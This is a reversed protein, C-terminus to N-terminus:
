CPFKKRMLDAVAMKLTVQGRSASPYQQVGKIFENQSLRGRPPPCSHPARGAAKDSKLRAGYAAGAAEGEAKLLKADASGLAFLGKKLLEDYKALFTAVTMDGPAASAPAIPMAAFLAAGALLVFRRMVRVGGRAM